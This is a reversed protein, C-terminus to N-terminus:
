SDSEALISEKEDIHWTNAASQVDEGDPSWPGEGKLFGAREM